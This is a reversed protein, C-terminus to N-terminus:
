YVLEDLKPPYIEEIKAAIFLATIGLLQLETKCVQVKCLMKNILDITLHLTEQRMNLKYHLEVLWDFLIRMMPLKIENQFTNIFDFNSLHDNEIDYVYQLITESYEFVDNM